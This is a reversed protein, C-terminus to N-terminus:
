FQLLAPCPSQGSSNRCRGLVSYSGAQFLSAGPSQEALASGSLMGRWPVRGTSPRGSQARQVTPVPGRGLLPLACIPRAGPAAASPHSAPGPQAVFAFPLHKHGSTRSLSAPAQSFGVPWNGADKGRPWLPSGPFGPISTGTEHSIHHQTEVQTWRVAGQVVTGCQHLTVCSDTPAVMMPVASSM